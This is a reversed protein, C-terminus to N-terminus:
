IVHAKVKGHKHNTEQSIQTSVSHLYSMKRDSKGSQQAHYRHDKDENGGKLAETKKRQIGNIIEM